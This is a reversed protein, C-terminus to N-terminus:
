EDLLAKIFTRTIEQQEFKLLNSEGDGRQLGYSGFNSHNGGEIEHFYSATELTNIESADLIDSTSRFQPKSALVKEPTSFSDNSGYLSLVNGQYDTLDVGGGPYAGLLVLNEYVDKNNVVESCAMAGGLSHGIISWSVIESFAKRIEKAADIDIVALNSPFKVIFVTRDEDTLGNLLDIYALPDVLGGPYMILATTARSADGLQIFKLTESTIASDLDSELEPYYSCSGLVLISIIYLYITHRM